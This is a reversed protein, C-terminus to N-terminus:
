SWVALREIKPVLETIRFPKAVCDDMGAKIALERQEQRANASVAIIPIHGLIRGQHEWDRIQTTATLGDMLPMEVDMLIISVHKSSPALRSTSTSSPSSSPSDRWHKTNRLYSLCDLGNDAVAVSYGHKSLQQRLLKQNVSNDEVVLIHTDSKQRQKTQDKNTQQLTLTAKVGSTAIPDAAHRTKIFFAFTSGVDLESAVGLTNDTSITSSTSAVKGIEGGQLESLERSIFLGLGSGGYERETRPSGQTFRAFIRGKEDASMGRGTDEVSFWLYFSKDEFEPKDHVSDHLSHAVVFNIGPIVQNEESPRTKSAGVRITIKRLSKKKCFKIANTLLNILVQQVRGPDLMAYSVKLQTLSDHAQTEVHVGCQQAEAEFMQEVDHLLSTVKVALPVIQLLNSDLKSLVLIDDV